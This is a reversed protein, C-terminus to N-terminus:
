YLATLLPADIRSASVEHALATIAGDIDNSNFVGSVRRSRLKGGMVLVRGARYRNLTAMVESLPARDFVLQGNQWALALDPNATQVSSVHGDADYRVSQGPSLTLTKDGNGSVAVQHHMVTVVTDGAQLEVQYRTGLATATGSGSEVVFPRGGAQAKPTARVYAKGVLLEIRRERRDFHVAIASSPALDVHSGDDLTFSGIQAIGTRHDARLYTIPDGMWASGITLTLAACATVTIPLAWRRRPLAVPRSQPASAMSHRALTGPNDALQGMQGWALQASGFAVANAPSAARWREFAAHTQASPQGDNLRVIWEAAELEPDPMSQSNQSM